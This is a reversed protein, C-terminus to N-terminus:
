NIGSSHETHNLTIYTQTKEHQRKNKSFEVNWLVSGSGLDIQPM